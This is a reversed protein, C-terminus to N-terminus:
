HFQWGKGYQCAEHCGGSGGLLATGSSMHLQMGDIGAQRERCGGVIRKLLLHSLAVGRLKLPRLALEELLVRRAEAALLQRDASLKVAVCRTLWSPGRGPRWTLA